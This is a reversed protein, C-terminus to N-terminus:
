GAILNEAAWRLAARRRAKQAILYGRGTELFERRADDERGSAIRSLVAHEDDESAALGKRLFVLDLAIDEELQALAEERLRADVEAPKVGHEIRYERYTVGADALERDFAARRERAAAEALAGPIVGHLRARLARRVLEGDSGDGGSTEAAEPDLTGADRETAPPEGDAPAADGEAANPAESASVADAEGKKDGPVIGGKRPTTKEASTRAIPEDLDLEMDPVPYARVRCSLPGGEAYAGVLECEPSLVFTMGLAELAQAAANHMAVGGLAAAIEAETFMREARERVGSEDVGLIRAMRLWAGRSLVAAEDASLSASLEIAGRAEDVTSIDM